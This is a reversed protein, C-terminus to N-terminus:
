AARKEPAGQACHDLYWDALEERSCFWIDDFQKVYRLFDRLARIRFPQGVVHPRLGMNMVRGSGQAIAAGRRGNLQDRFVEIAGDVDKGQRMFVTVDDVESTYTISVLDRECETTILCPKEDNQLRPQVFNRPAINDGRATAAVIMQHCELAMKANMSTSTPIGEVEIVHFMRWFGIRQGDERWTGNPTDYTNGHLTGGVIGPAGPQCPEPDDRQKDRYELNTTLIVAITKGYPFVLKEREPLPIFDYRM